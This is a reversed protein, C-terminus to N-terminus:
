MNKKIYDYCLNIFQEFPNNDNIWDYMKPPIYQGHWSTPRCFQSIALSAQGRLLEIAIGKRDENSYYTPGDGDTFTICRALGIVISGGCDGEGKDTGSVQFKYGRFPSLYGITITEDNEDVVLLELVPIKGEESVIEGFKIKELM